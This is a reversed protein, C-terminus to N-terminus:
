SLRKLRLDRFGAEKVVTNLDSRDEAFATRFVEVHTIKSRDKNFEFLAVADFHNAHGTAKHNHFSGLGTCNGELRVWLSHLSAQALQLNDVGVHFDPFTSRLDELYHEMGKHGVAPHTSGWVMDVHVCEEDFLDEIVDKNANNVFDRFFSQVKLVRRGRNSCFSPTLRSPSQHLNSCLDAVCMDKTRWDHIEETDRFAVVHLAARRSAIGSPRRLVSRRFGSQFQTPPVKRTAMSSRASACLTTMTMLMEIDCSSETEIRKRDKKM